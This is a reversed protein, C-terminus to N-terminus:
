GLAHVTGDRTGVFVAGGAAVTVPERRWERLDTGRRWRGDEGRAVAVSYGLLEHDDAPVVAGAGDFGPLRTPRFTQEYERPNEVAEWVV